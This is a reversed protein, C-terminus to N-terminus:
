KKVCITRLGRWNELRCMRGTNKCLRVATKAVRLSHKYRKEALCTGIFTNVEEILNEM